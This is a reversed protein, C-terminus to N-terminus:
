LLPNEENDIELKGTSLIERLQAVDSAEEVRSLQKELYFAEEEIKERLALASPIKLKKVFLFEPPLGSSEILASTVRKSQNLLHQRTKEKAEDLPLPVMSPRQYAVGDEVEYFWELSTLIDEEGLWERVRYVGLNRLVEGDATAPDVGVLGRLQGQSFIERTPEFYYMM